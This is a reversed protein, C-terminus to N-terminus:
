QLRVDEDREVRNDQDAKQRYEENEKMM